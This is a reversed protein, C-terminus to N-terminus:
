AAARARAKKRRIQKKQRNKEKPASPPAQEANWEDWLAKLERVKDPNDAALNKSETIDDALNHLEGNLDGGNGAVLKWDDHRIAWQHGFRWYLTEHPRDSNEGTLYPLLNVGDLKWAPDTDVGAAALSTPLIDLQIVPHDYTKGAPLRGKWQMCFPVRVGGEWTTAKAGRLPDNRSTTQGTPGGNDALFFVLTNKEQGMARVKDLIKGVADDMASFM